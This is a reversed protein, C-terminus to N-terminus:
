KQIVLKHITSEANFTNTIQIFYIGDALNVNIKAINGEAAPKETFIKKGTIDM